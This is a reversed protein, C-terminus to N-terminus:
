AARRSAVRVVDEMDSTPVGFDDAVEALDEGAWFRDLVDSVRVGGVAFIPQGFSRDPDVLVEAREYEPLRIVTAFTDKPDYSIRTLYEAVVDTFVRQGSRLVVLDKLAQHLKEDHSGHQAFDFLVEAGDTYLRKSALAHTVGIEKALADLAPRIRQLPVGSRRIAALVMGEVLGIFPISPYLPGRSPFATVIPAGKYSSRGPPRREYGRAWTAFTAAPVALARAAEAATYLPVAVRRDDPKMDQIAPNKYVAFATV